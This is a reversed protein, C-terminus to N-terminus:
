IPFEGHWSAQVLHKPLYGSEVEMRFDPDHRDTDFALCALSLLGLPVVGSVKRTRQEDATQFARFQELSRVLVDNFKDTDRRVLHLFTRMQPFVITDLVEPSGFAHEPTSLEMASRLHDGLGPRNLVFDQIASIWHYTYPNYQTGKSEGAERLLDVPIECLQRYREHDRCIVALHFATTWNDANTFSEPGTAVPRRVKHDVMLELETGPASTTLMFFAHHMQMAAVWAEWTELMAAEPDAHVSFLANLYLTSLSMDISDAGHDLRDAWHARNEKNLDWREPSAAIALDHRPVYRTM